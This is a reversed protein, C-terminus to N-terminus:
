WQSGEMEATAASIPQSGETKTTAPQSGEMEATAASIPQSGTQVHAAEGISNSQFTYLIPTCMCTYTVQEATFNKKETLTCETKTTIVELPFHRRESNTELRIIVDIM